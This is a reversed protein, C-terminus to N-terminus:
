SPAGGVGSSIAQAQNAPAWTVILGAVVQRSHLSSGTASVLRDIDTLATLLDLPLKRGFLKEAAPYLDCYARWQTEAIQIVVSSVTMNGKRREKLEELGRDLGRAVMRASQGDLFTDMPKDLPRVRVVLVVDM